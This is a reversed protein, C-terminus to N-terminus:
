NMGLLKYCKIDVLNHNMMYFHFFVFLEPISDKDFDYFFLEQILPISIYKQELALHKKNKCNYIHLVNADTIFGIFNNFRRTRNYFILSDKFQSYIEKTLSDPKYDYGNLNFRIDHNKNKQLFSDADFDKSVFGTKELKYIQPFVQNNTDDIVDQTLLVNTDLLILYDDKIIFSTYENVGTDLLVKTEIKTTCSALALLVFLLKPFYKLLKM